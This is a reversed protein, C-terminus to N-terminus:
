SNRKIIKMMKKAERGYTEATPQRWEEVEEESKSLEYEWGFIKSINLHDDQIDNEDISVFANPIIKFIYKRAYSPLKSVVLGRLAESDYNWFKDYVIKIRNFLEDYPLSMKLNGKKECENIDLSDLLRVGKLRKLVFKKDFLM